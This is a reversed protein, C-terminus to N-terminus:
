CTFKIFECINWLVHWPAYMTTHEFKLMQMYQEAITTMLSTSLEIALFPVIKDVLLHCILYSRIESPIYGVFRLTSIDHRCAALYVCPTVGPTGNPLYSLVCRDKKVAVMFLEERINTNHVFCVTSPNFQIAALCVAVTQQMAPIFALAFSTQRVAALCIEETLFQQPINMIAIGETKVKALCKVPDSSWSEELRHYKSILRSIEAETAPDTDSM